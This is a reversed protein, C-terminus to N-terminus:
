TIRRCFFQAATPWGGLSKGSGANQSAQIRIKDGAALEIIIPPTSIMMYLNNGPAYFIFDAWTAANKMLYITVYAGDVSNGNLQIKGCVFYNGAANATFTSSFLKYGEGNAMIDRNLTLDSTSNFTTVIAYTHDTTNWVQKGVDAAAFQNLTTDILHSATTATASGSKVTADFEGLVDTVENDFLIIPYSGSSIDEITQGLSSNAVVNGDDSTLITKTEALTKKVFAGSGSASLFDKAATALSHKIYQTHDDDTLGDLALGHDIKGGVGSGSSQHTHDKPKQLDTLEGALGAVSIEDAGTDQHSTKHAEPAFTTPKGSVKAWSSKQESFLEGDLGQVSIEDAGTDQHSTKHAEPAFTTPKGSVKAWSSKQESFLEGDLGQVSIEDAGTDQHSTKHAEPAFTTPKGSVKAWSSKQEAFLEGDLGQVSIEDTGTDQHSTKHATPAASKDYDETEPM